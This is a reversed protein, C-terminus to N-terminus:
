VIEFVHFVYTGNEVQFTNVYIVDNAIKHGTGYICFQRTEKEKSSDVLAWLCPKERQMQVTLIAAGEPMEIKNLGMSIEYKWVTKM